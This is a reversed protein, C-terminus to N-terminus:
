LIAQSRKFMLYKQLISLAMPISKPNFRVPIAIVSSEPIIALGNIAMADSFSM